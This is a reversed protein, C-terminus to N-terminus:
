KIKHAMTFIYINTKLNLFAECSLQFETIYQLYNMQCLPGYGLFDHKQWEM